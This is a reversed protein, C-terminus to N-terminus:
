RRKSPPRLQAQAQLSAQDRAASGGDGCGGWGRRRRTPGRGGGPDSASWPPGPSFLFSLKTIVLFGERRLCPPIYESRSCAAPWLGVPLETIPRLHGQPCLNDQSPFHHCLSQDARRPVSLSTLIGALAVPHVCLWSGSGSFDLLFPVQM